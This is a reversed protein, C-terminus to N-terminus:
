IEWWRIRRRPVKWCGARGQVVRRGFGFNLQGVFLLTHNFQDFISFIHEVSARCPSPFGGDELSKDWHESILALSHLNQCWGIDSRVIDTALCQVSKRSPFDDGGVLVLLSLFLLSRFLVCLCQVSQFSSRKPLFLKLFEIFNIHKDDVFYTHDGVKIELSQILNHLVASRSFTITFSRKTTNLDHNGSVHTAGHLSTM